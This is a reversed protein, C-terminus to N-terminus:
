DNLVKSAFVGVFHTHKDGVNRAGNKDKNHLNDVDKEPCPNQVQNALITV